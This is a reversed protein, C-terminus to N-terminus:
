LWRRWVFISYSLGMIILTFGMIYYFVGDQGGGPLGVNMGYISSIITPLTLIITISTLFKLVKNLNNTLITSYAERINKITKINTDCLEIVQRMDVLLDEILDQEQEFLSIFKGKLIKNFISANGVLASIYNNLIEEREVLNTIDTNKLKDLRFRQKNISKASSRILYDYSKVTRKFVDFLFKPRNQTQFDKGGLLFSGIIDNPRISVTILYKQTLIITLPISFFSEKEGLPIRIIIVLYDKESEIRPLESEDLADELIDLPINAKESIFRIEQATPDVVRVWCNESLEGVEKLERDRHNKKYIKIM